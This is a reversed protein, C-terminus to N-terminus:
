PKLPRLYCVLELRTLESLEKACQTLQERTRRLAADELQMYFEVAQLSQRMGTAQCLRRFGQMTLLYSPDAIFNRGQELARHLLPYVEEVSALGLWPFVARVSLVFDRAPDGDVFHASFATAFRSSYVDDADVATSMTTSVGSSPDASPASM